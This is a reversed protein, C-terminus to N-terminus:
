VTLRSQLSKAAAAAAAAAPGWRKKSGGPFSSNSRWDHIGRPSPASRMESFLWAARDGHIKGVFPTGSAASCTRDRM